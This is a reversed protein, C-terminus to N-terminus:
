LSAHPESKASLFANYNRPSGAMCNILNGPGFVELAVARATRSMKGRLAAAGEGVLYDLAAQNDVKVFGIGAAKLAKLYDTWYRTVDEPAPLFIHRFPPPYPYQSQNDRLGYRKLKYTKSIDSDPHLGRWYGQLTMWVGITRIEPFRHKLSRVVAALKSQGDLTPIDEDLWGERLGFTRLSRPNDAELSVTVDQWGDDLLLSGFYGLDGGDRLAELRRVLGSYTYDQGLSNWTCYIAKSVQALSWKPEAVEDIVEPQRNTRQGASEDIIRKAAATCADIVGLLDYDPGWSVVCQAQAPSSNERESRLWVSDSGESCGRLTSSADPLSLPFCAVFRSGSQYLLLQCDLATSLENFRDLPRATFCRPKSREISLGSSWGGLTIIRFSEVQGEVGDTLSYKIIRTIIDFQSQEDLVETAQDANATPDFADASATSAV